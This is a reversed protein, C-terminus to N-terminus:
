RQGDAVEAIFDEILTRYPTSAVAIPDLLEVGHSYADVIELRALEAPTAEALATASAAFGGDSRGVLYLVPMTLSPVAATADVTSFTSPASVAVAGDVAPEIAAAAALSMTGGMSAGVLVVTSAGDSRVHAVVAAIDDVFSEEGVLTSAGNGAFDFAVVRYGRDALVTGYPLWQCLDGGSQHALVVAVPGSGLAITAISAGAPTTVRAATGAAAEAECGVGPEFIPTPLAM